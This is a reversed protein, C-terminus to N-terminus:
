PIPAQQYQCAFNFEGQSGRIRDLVLKPERAAHLPEGTRRIFLRKCGLTEIEYEEDCEAIAALKLVDWGGHEMVHGVLDDEHLRQSIMVIRSDQKSNLRSLATGDFWENVKKRQTESVAEEPKAADDVIMLDCGRGTLIEGVSTALRSGHNTTILEQLASTQNSLRTKPFLLKYWSSTMISRCDRALKEALEMAYSICIIQVSPDHGLIFAPLAVSALLSKLHRPTVNVILRRTKGSMCEALRGAILELHWNPMFVTSPYLHTFCRVMFTHLDNRLLAHYESLTLEMAELDARIAEHVADHIILGDRGSPCDPWANSNRTM